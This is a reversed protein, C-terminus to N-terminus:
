AGLLVEWVGERGWPCVCWFVNAEDGRQHLYVSVLRTKSIARLANQRCAPARRNPRATRDSRGGRGLSSRAFFLPLPM